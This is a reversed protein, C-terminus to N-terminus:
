YINVIKMITLIIFILLIQDRYRDYVARLLILAILTTNLAVIVGTSYLLLIFSIIGWVIAVIHRYLFWGAVALVVAFVAVLYDAVHHM